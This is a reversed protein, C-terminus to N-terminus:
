ESEYFINLYFFLFLFEKIRHIGRNKKAYDFSNQFNSKIKPLENVITTIKQHQQKAYFCLIIKLLYPLIYVFVVILFITKVIYYLTIQKIFFISGFGLVLIFIVWLNLSKHKKKTTDVHLNQNQFKFDEPLKYNKISNLLLIAIYAIIFAWLIYTFLYISFLLDISIITNTFITTISNLLEQLSSWLKKGFIFYAMVPKQVANEIMVVISYVYISVRNIKLLYFIFFAMLGQFLVAIYAGLPSFPSLSFKALLVIGIASLMIKFNIQSYKALFVNIMISFGGLIWGTVPIHFLHLFGGLGSEIFVWLYILRSITESKNLSYEAM